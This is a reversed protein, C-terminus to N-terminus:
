FTNAGANVAIPIVGYRVCALANKGVAANGKRNVSGDPLIAYAFILKRLLSKLSGARITKGFVKQLATESPVIWPM